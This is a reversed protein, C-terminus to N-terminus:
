GFPNEDVDPQGAADADSGFGGDDEPQAQQQVPKQQQRQQPAPVEEAPASYRAAAARFRNSWLTKLGFDLFSMLAECEGMTLGVRFKDKNNRLISLSFGLLKDDKIFPGFTFAATGNASTHYGKFEVQRKFADIFGGIEFENFKINVTKDPNKANGKFSGRKTNADWGSQIVGSAFLCIDGKTDGGKKDPGFNFTFASGTNSANPKFIQLSM